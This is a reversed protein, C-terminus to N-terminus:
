SRRRMVLVPIWVALWAALILGALGYAAMNAPEFPSWHFALYETFGCARASEQGRCVGDYGIVIKFLFAAIVFLPPGAVLWPLHRSFFSDIRPMLIEQFGPNATM